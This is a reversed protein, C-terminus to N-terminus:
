FRIAGRLLVAQAVRGAIREAREAVTVPAHDIVLEPPEDDDM